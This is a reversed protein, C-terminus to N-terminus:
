DILEVKRDNDIVFYSEMVGTHALHNKTEKIVETVPINYKKCLEKTIRIPKLPKLPKLRCQVCVKSEEDYLFKLVELKYDFESNRIIVTGFVRIEYRDNVFFDSPINNICLTSWEMNDMRETSVTETILDNNMIISYNKNFRDIVKLNGDMGIVVSNAFIKIM